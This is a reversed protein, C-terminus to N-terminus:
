SSGHKYNFYEIDKEYVSKVITKTEDTYYDCYNKRRSTANCKPILKINGFGVDQLVTGLDEDFNEYRGVFDYKALTQDACWFWYPLQPKLGAWKYKKLTRVFDEKVFRIFEAKQMKFDIQSLEFIYNTTTNTRLRYERAKKYAGEVRPIVSKTLYNTYEVSIPIKLSRISDGSFINQTLFVNAQSCWWSLLRYLSNRTFTFKYYNNWENPYKLQYDIPGSHDVKKHGFINMITHGGARPVHVFICKYKTDIM